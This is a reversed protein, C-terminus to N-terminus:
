VVLGLLWNGFIPFSGIDVRTHGLPYAGGRLLLNHTRTGGQIYASSAATEAFSKMGVRAALFYPCLSEFDWGKWRFHSASRRLCFQIVLLRCLAFGAVFYYGGVPPQVWSGCNVLNVSQGSISEFEMTNQGRPNPDGRHRKGRRLDCVFVLLGLLFEHTFATSPVHHLPIVDAKCASPGPNLGWHTWKAARARPPCGLFM